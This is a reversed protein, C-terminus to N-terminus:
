ERHGLRRHNLRSHNRARRTLATDAAPLLVLHDLDAWSLCLARGDDALMIWARHGLDEGCEDCRSGRDAQQSVLVTVCAARPSRKLWWRSAAILAM